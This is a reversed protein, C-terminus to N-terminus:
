CQTFAKFTKFPSNLPARYLDEFYIGYELHTVDFCDADILWVLSLLLRTSSHCKGGRLYHKLSVSFAQVLNIM